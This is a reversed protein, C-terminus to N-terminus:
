GHRRFVHEGLALAAAGDLVLVAGGSADFFGGRRGDGDEVDVEVVVGFVVDVGEGGVRCRGVQAEVLVQGLGDGVDAAGADLKEDLAALNADFALGGLGLLLEVAAFGDLDFARGCGGGSWATASSM